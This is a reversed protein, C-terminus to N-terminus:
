EEPLLRITRKYNIYKKAITNPDEKVMIKEKNLLTVLTDPTQEIYLIMDPNIFILENNLKTLQIV